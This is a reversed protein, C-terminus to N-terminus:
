ITSTAGIFTNPIGNLAFLTPGVNVLSILNEKLPAEVLYEFNVVGALAQSTTYPYQGAEDTTPAVGNVLLTVARYVYLRHRCEVGVVKMRGSVLYARLPSTFM